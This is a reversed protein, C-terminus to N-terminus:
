CRRRSIELRKSRYTEFLIDLGRRIVTALERKIRAMLIQIENVLIELHEGICNDAYLANNLALYETPM